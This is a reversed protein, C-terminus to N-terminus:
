ASPPLAKLLAQEGGEFAYAEYGAQQMLECLTAARAGNACYLVYTRERDLERFTDILESAERHEAGPVHWRRYLHEPRCDIIVAREPLRRVFLAPPRRGAARTALIDISRRTALAAALLAEDIKRAEREVKHPRAATVTQGAGLACYEKVRESLAATGIRRAEDIIELKDCGILPRLLPLAAAGELARLNAVTQSSVQGLSEGTVLADAGIAGALMSAVRYMSHKLMVQWYGQRVRRKLVELLPQFDVVHLQPRHGLAWGNVLTKVVQLVMREYAAGGLNCFLYDMGLGRRMVRWAAVASDFGGSLLTLAFGQTAPALGGPGAIREAFLYAVDRMVEVEIRIEPRSLDVRGHPNLAAGLARQIDLSCFAHEGHRQARVAYRRGGIRPGFLAAGRTVITDLEAAVSAAIPSLSGVGFVREIVKTAELVRPTAVFFRGFHSSVEAEIGARGLAECLAAELAQHFRLRVRHGKTTLESASRVVVLGSPVQETVEIQPLPRSLVV